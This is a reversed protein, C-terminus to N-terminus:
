IKDSYAVGSDVVEYDVVEQDAVETYAVKSYAPRGKPSFVREIGAVTPNKERSAYM